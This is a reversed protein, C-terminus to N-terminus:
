EASLAESKRGVQQGLARVQRSVALGIEIGDGIAQVASLAGGMGEMRGQFHECPHQGQVM